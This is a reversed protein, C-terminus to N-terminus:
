EVSGWFFEGHGLFGYQRERQLITYMRRCVILSFAEGGYTTSKMAVGVAVRLQWLVSLKHEKVIQGGRLGRGWTSSM